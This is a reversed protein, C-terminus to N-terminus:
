RRNFIQSLLYRFSFMTTLAQSRKTFSLKFLLYRSNFSIRSFCVKIPITSICRQREKIWYEVLSYRTLWSARAHTKKKKEDGTFEREVSDADYLPIIKGALNVAIQHDLDSLAPDVVMTSLFSLSLLQLPHYYLSCGASCSAFQPHADAKVKM